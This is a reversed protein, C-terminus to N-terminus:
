IFLLIVGLVMTVILWDKSLGRRGKLIAKHALECTFSSIILVVLGIGPLLVGIDPSEPLPWNEASTAITRQVFYYAFISGFVAIESLFFLKTGLVLDKGQAEVGFHGAWKDVIVNHLWGMTPVICLLSGLGLVIYGWIRTSESGWILLLAGVPLLTMMMALVFPWIDPKPNMAPLYEDHEEAPQDVVPGEKELAEENAVDAVSM